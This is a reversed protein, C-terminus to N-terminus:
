GPGEPGAGGRSRRMRRAAGRRAQPFHGLTEPNPPPPAVTVPLMDQARTGKAWKWSRSSARSKRLGCRRWPLTAAPLSLPSDPGPRPSDRRARPQRHGHEGLARHTDRRLQWM